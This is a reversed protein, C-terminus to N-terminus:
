PEIVVRGEAPEFFDYPPTDSVGGWTVYPYSLLSDVLQKKVAM